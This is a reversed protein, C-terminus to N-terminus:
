SSYNKTVTLYVILATFGLVMIVVPLCQLGAAGIAGISQCIAVLSGKIIGGAGFGILQLIGAGCTGLAGISHGIAVFSGKIIGVAGFGLLYIFGIVLHPALFAIVIIAIAIIFIIYNDTIFKIIAEFFERIKEFIPGFDPFQIEPFKVEPVKVEPFQVEPFQIESIEINPLEVTNMYADLSEENIENYEENVKVDNQKTLIVTDADTLQITIVKKQSVPFSIVFQCLLFTLILITITVKSFSKM